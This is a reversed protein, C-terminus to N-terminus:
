KLDLFLAIYGAVAVVLAVELSGLSSSVSGLFLAARYECADQPIDRRAAEQVAQRPPALEPASSPLVRV